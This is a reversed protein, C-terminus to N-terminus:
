YFVMSSMVPSFGQCSSSEGDCRKPAAHGQVTGDARDRQGLCSILLLIWAGQGLQHPQLRGHSRHSRSGRTGQGCATHQWWNEWAEARDQQEATSSEQRREGRCFWPCLSLGALAESSKTRCLLAAQELLSRYRMLRPHQRRAQYCSPSTQIVYNAPLSCPETTPPLLFVEGLDCCRRPPM